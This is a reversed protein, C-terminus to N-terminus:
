GQGGSGAARDRAARHVHRMALLAALEEDGDAVAQLIMEHERWAADARVPANRHFLMETRERLPRMMDQLVRNAGAQVLLDHFAANLAALEEASGEAALRQGQTILAGIRELTSEDRRRAALRATLGELVARVEVLDKALDPTVAAVQMGRGGPADRAPEALGEVHLQRIAERIPVRSMGLEASLKEEVLREGPRLAGSMIARRLADLARQSLRQAQGPEIEAAASM